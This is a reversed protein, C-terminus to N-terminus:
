KIGLLERWLPLCVTEYDYREVAIRRAEKAMAASKEKDELTERVREALARHDFFPVLRGNVGDTIIERVPATDSAVIRCELAMSEISSWSLVFPYTMYIHASSVQLVKVFQDYPLNGVLHVRSWDVPRDIKSVFHDYWSKGGPARGSYSNGKGGIVVVQLDPHIDLLYPLSKFVIHAGRMPEINRTVYTVVPKQRTLKPGDQGIQIGITPNPVLRKTDIGDHIVAVRDHLYTPFTDRQYRTPAVALDAADLAGLQMSNKLRLRWIVEEDTVPFEPDFDLDQGKAQYYYEFYAVHKAKPWVDKLFLNEGWGTNVVVVDPEFGQRALERARHAVGYARRLRPIVPSFRAEHQPDEPGAVPNYSYYKVGPLLCQKAMGLAVVEHGEAVFTQALRLFQGPFNQHVFVIKM